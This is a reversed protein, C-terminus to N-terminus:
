QNFVTISQFVSWFKYLFDNQFFIAQIQLFLFSFLLFLWFLFFLIVYWTGIIEQRDIADAQSFNRHDWCTTVLDICIAYQYQGEFYMM